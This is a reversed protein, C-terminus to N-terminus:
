AAAGGRTDAWGRLEGLGVGRLGSRSIAGFSSPDFPVAGYIRLRVGLATFGGISVHVFGGDPTRWAEGTVNTLSDAWSLLGEALRPLQTTPLGAEADFRGRYTQVRVVDPVMVPFAAVHAQLGQLVALLDRAETLRNM